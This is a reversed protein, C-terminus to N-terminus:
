KFLAIRKELICSYEHMTDHQQRLLEKNEEDLSSFVDSNEIFDALASQKADLEAKETVVREEHAKM